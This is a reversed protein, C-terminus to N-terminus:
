APVEPIALVVVLGPAQRPPPVGLTRYTDRETDSMQPMLPQAHLLVAPRHIDIQAPLRPIMHAELLYKGAPLIPMTLDFVQAKSTM